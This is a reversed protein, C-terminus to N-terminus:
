VIHSQWALNAAALDELATGVSKFVTIEATNLRGAHRACALDALEAQVQDAALFGAAIVQVLDGAEALPGSSHIVEGIGSFNYHNRGFNTICNWGNPRSFHLVGVDGTEHWTIEETTIM